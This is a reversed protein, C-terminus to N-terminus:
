LSACIFSFYLNQRIGNKNRDYNIQNVAEAILDRSPSNQYTGMGQQTQVAASVPRDTQVIQLVFPVTLTLKFLQSNERLIEVYLFWWAHSDAPHKPSLCCLTTEFWVQSGSMELYKKEDEPIPIRKEKLTEGGKNYYRFKRIAHPREARQNTHDFKPPNERMRLAEDLVEQGRFTKLANDGFRAGRELTEYDPIFKTKSKSTGNVMSAESRANRPSLWDKVKLSGGMVYGPVHSGSSIVTEAQNETIQTGQGVWSERTSQQSLAASMGSGSKKSKSAKSLSHAALSAERSLQRAQALVGARLSREMESLKTSAHKLEKCTAVWEKHSMNPGFTRRDYENMHRGVAFPCSQWFQTEGEPPVYGDDDPTIDPWWARVESGMLRGSATLAKIGNCKAIGGRKKPGIFRIDEGHVFPGHPQRYNVEVGGHYTAVPSYAYTAGRGAVLRKPSDTQIGITNADGRDGPHPDTPESKSAISMSAISMSAAATKPRQWGSVSSGAHHPPTQRMLVGHKMTGGEGAKPKVHAGKALVGHKGYFELTDSLAVVAAPAKKAFSDAPEADKSRLSGDNPRFVRTHTRQLGKRPSLPQTRAQSKVAVPSYQPTSTTGVGPAAEPKLLEQPVLASGPRPRAHQKAQPQSPKGARPTSYRGNDSPAPPPAEKM